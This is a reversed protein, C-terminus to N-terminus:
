SITAVFEKYAKTQPVQQSLIPLPDISEVDNKQNMHSLYSEIKPDFLGNEIINLCNLFFVFVDLLQFLRFSRLTGFTESEVFLTSESFLRNKAHFMIPRNKIFLGFM